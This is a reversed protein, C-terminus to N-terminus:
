SLSREFAQAFGAISDASDIGNIVRRANFYDCEESNIYKGLGVGTFSGHVMGYSAIKYAITPNLAYEPHNVLDVGLIKSFKEYNGKWTLQIYGAGAYVKGTIPDPNGYPHGAGNGKEEVPAFTFWTEHRTTALLYAVWRQDQMAEDSAIFGLLQRLNAEHGLPPWPYAAVIQDVTKQLM